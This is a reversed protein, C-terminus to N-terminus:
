PSVVSATLSPGRGRRLAKNVGPAEVSEWLSVKKFIAWLAIPIFEDFVRYENRNAFVMNGILFAIGVAKWGRDKWDTAPLLLFILFTGGNVFIPHNLYTMTLARLSYLIGKQQVGLLVLPGESDTVMTFGIHPNNTFVDITIKLAVCAILVALTLSIRRKWHMGAWFLFILVVVIATEKFATGIVCVVVVWLPKNWEVALWLLVFILLAPGDWPYIHRDAM